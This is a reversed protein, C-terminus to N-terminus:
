QRQQPLYSHLLQLLERGLGQLLELVLHVDHYLQAMGVDNLHPMSAHVVERAHSQM